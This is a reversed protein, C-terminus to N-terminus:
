EMKVNRFGSASLKCPEELDNGFGEMILIYPRGAKIVNNNCVLYLTQPRNGPCLIVM